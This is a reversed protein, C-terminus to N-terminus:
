NSLRKMKMPDGEYGLAKWDMRTGDKHCDLCTETVEMPTEFPSEIEHHDNAFGASSGILLGLAAVLVAYFKMMEKEKKGKLM